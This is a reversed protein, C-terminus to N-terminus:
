TIVKKTSQQKIKYKDYYKTYKTPVNLSYEPYKLKLKSVHYDIMHNFEVQNMNESVITLQKYQSDYMFDATLRIMSGDCYAKCLGIDFYKIVYETPEMDVGIVNYLVDNKYIRWTNDIHNDTDYSEDDEGSHEIWDRYNNLDFMDEWFSSCHNEDNPVYIDIDNVVRDHYLDRIAGGAIIATPIDERIKNLTFIYSESKNLRLLNM